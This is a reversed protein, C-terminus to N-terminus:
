MKLNPIKKFYYDIKEDTSLSISYDLAIKSKQTDQIFLNADDASVILTAIKKTM